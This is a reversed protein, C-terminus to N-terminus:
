LRHHAIGPRRLLMPLEESTRWGYQYISGVFMIPNQAMIVVALVPAPMIRLPSSLTGPLGARGALRIQSDEHSNKCIKPSSESFYPSYGRIKPSSEPFYSSSERIKPSSKPVQTHARARRSSGSLRDTTHIRDQAFDFPHPGTCHPAM